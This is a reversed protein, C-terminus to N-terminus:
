AAAKDKASKIHHNLRSKLRSTTKQHLVNKAGAKDLKKVTVRFLEDAKEFEKAAVAERVKRISSRIASKIARNHNRRIVNQRLRKKASKTNPM